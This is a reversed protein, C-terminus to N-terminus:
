LTGGTAVRRGASAELHGDMREHVREVSAEVAVLRNDTGDLRANVTGVWMGVSFTISKVAWVATGVMTLVTILLAGIGTLLEWHAITWAM